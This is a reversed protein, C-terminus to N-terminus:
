HSRIQIDNIGEDSSGKFINLNCSFNSKKLEDYNIFFLGQLIALIVFLFLITRM